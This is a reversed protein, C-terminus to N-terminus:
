KKGQFIRKFFFVLVVRIRKFFLIIGFFGSLIVQILVSGSSPDIYLLKIFIM